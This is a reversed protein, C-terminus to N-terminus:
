PLRSLIISVAAALGGVVIGALGVLLGALWKTQRFITGEVGRLAESLDSRVEAQRAEDKADVLSETVTVM